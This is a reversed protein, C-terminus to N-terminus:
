DGNKHTMEDYSDNTIASWVDSISTTPLKNKMSDKSSM